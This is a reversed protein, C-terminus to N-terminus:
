INWSRGKYGTSYSYLQALRFRLPAFFLICIFLLRAIVFFRTPRKHSLWRYIKLLPSYGFLVIGSDASFDSYIRGFHSGSDIKSTRGRRFHIYRQANMKASHTERKIVNDSLRSLSESIRCIIKTRRYINRLVLARHSAKNRLRVRHVHIIMAFFFSIFFESVGYYIVIIRAYIEFSLYKHFRTVIFVFISNEFINEKWRIVTAMIEFYM